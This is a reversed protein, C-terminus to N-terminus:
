HSIGCYKIKVKLFDTLSRGQDRLVDKTRKFDRYFVYSPNGVRVVGAYIVKCLRPSLMCASASLCPKMSVHRCASGCCKGRQLHAVESLVLYGTVPDM